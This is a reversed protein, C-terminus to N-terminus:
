LVLWIVAYLVVMTFLPIIYNTDGNRMHRLIEDWNLDNKGANSPDTSRSEKDIADLLDDMEELSIYEEKKEESVHKPHLCAACETVNAGNMCTCQTCQWQSAM